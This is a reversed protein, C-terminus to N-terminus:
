WSPRATRRWSTTSRSRARITCDLPRGPRADPANVCSTAPQQTVHCYTTGPTCTDDYFYWTNEEFVSKPPFEVEDMCAYGTRELLLDPDVPLILPELWTGGVKGLKPEVVAPSDNDAVIKTEFTYDVAVYDHGDITQRHPAGQLKIDWISKPPLPLPGKPDTYYSGRFVLRYSALRIQRQAKEIWFQDGSLRATESARYRLMGAPIEDLLLGVTSQMQMQVLSGAPKSPAASTPLAAGAIALLLSALAVIGSKLKLM